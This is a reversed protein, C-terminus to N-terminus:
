ETDITLDTIHNVSSFLGLHSNRGIGTAFLFSIHKSMVKLKIYFDGLIRRLDELLHPRDMFKTLPADYEDILVAVGNTSRLGLTRIIDNLNDDGSQGPPLALGLRDARERTHDALSKNFAPLGATTDILGMDLRLVPRPAFRREDLRKEVALGQFLDRRGSFLHELASVTLTKGFGRPRALHFAHAGRRILHALFGTKDVYPGRGKVVQEFGTGPNLPKDMFETMNTAEDLCTSPDGRGVTM